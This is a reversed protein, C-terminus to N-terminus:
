RLVRLANFIAVLTVGVDAFVAEWMDAVGAAGLAVFILKVVLALIINEYVIRRTKQGVKIAEPIKSPADTMLVIDATEVAIDAGFKGMAIGIDAQAIVPADNIGDGVFAVAEKGKKGAIIETLIRVKDEPLLGSHYRKIGLSQSVDNAVQENDGTLMIINKVGITELEAVARGADEKVEDSVVIYGAYTSDVVVHAVTRHLDCIEHPINELHLLRDNGVIVPTNLVVAKIGLGSIEQYDEVAAPDIARGYAEKISEALPHNSHSEALAAYKLTDERSFGNKVVIDTVKFNGRTLTGTKDFVVTKVRSLVDIFNSGKILIGRASAGGIGGFYGLPISIVLACPCSIVLIVLARYIWEAFGAGSILLPPLIAVSLALFVVIPTYYRAFTTIFKETEAKKHIANEVLDLIKSVSSEQFSRTVGITLSGSKVIMGSLVIDGKELSRPVSEGTLASTDVQSRGSIVEGDLPVREGPKVLITDGVNVIEPDVKVYNSGKKLNAYDPKIKLLSKISKRSRSLALHEFFEGVKFFIMVGAAEPLAHIAIAGLTAITMLFHEDFIKGKIINKGATALVGWGSSLYAAVFVLYEGYSYATDQLPKKFVMGLVFIVVSIGIPLLDKFVGPRNEDEMSRSPVDAVEVDPEIHRIAAVVKDMSETEIHMTATAFNIAVSEVSDLRSLGNEIKLACDACDLNNLAYKKMLM